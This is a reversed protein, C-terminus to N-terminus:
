KLTGVVDEYVFVKPWSYMPGYSGFDKMLTDGWDFLIIRINKLNV